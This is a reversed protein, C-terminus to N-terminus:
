FWYSLGIQLQPDALNSDLWSLNGSLRDSLAISLDIGYSNLHENETESTSDSLPLERRIIRHNNRLRSITLSGNSDGTFETEYWISALWDKSLLAFSYDFNTALSYLWISQDLSDTGARFVGLPLNNDRIFRNAQASQILQQHSSQNKQLGSSHFRTATLEFDISLDPNVSSLDVFYRASFEYFKDKNSYEQQDQRDVYNNKNQGLHKVASISHKIESQGIAASILWNNLYYNAYLEYSDYNLKSQSNFRPQNNSDQNSATSIATGFLWDRHSYNFQFSHNIASLNDRTPGIQVPQNLESISWSLGVDASNAWMPLLATLYLLFRRM